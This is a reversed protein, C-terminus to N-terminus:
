LQQLIDKQEDTLTSNSILRVINSHVGYVLATHIHNSHTNIHTMYLRLHAILTNLGPRLNYPLALVVLKKNNAFDSNALMNTYNFSITDAIPLLFSMQYGRLMLRKIFALKQQEFLASSSCTRSFRILEGKIFGKFVHTPHLSRQTIYSFKNLPKTYTKYSIKVAQDSFLSDEYFVFLDLFALGTLSTEMTFTIGPLWTNIDRHFELLEKDTGAWLFLTDDIYRMYNIVNQMNAMRFDLHFALYINALSVSSNSGMAIGDTQRFTTKNYQFFNNESVFRALEVLRSNSTDLLQLTEYLHPLRINTYLSSIDMSVLRLRKTTMADLRKTAEYSNKIIYKGMDSNLHSQLRIDLIIAAPTTYWNTAGVIPRSSLVQKHVKPIIYFAPLDYTHNARCLDREQKSFSNNPLDHLQNAVDGENLHEIIQYHNDDQLHTRVLEDYQQITLVALGLNKDTPKFILEPHAKKFRKLKSYEDTLISIPQQKTFQRVLLEMRLLEEHFACLYRIHKDPEKTPRKFFRLKPNYEEHIDDNDPHNSFFDAWVAKNRFDKFASLIANNALSPNLPIHKLGLNFTQLFSEIDPHNSINFVPPKDYDLVPYRHGHLM